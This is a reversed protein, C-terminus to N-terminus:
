KTWDSKSQPKGLRFELMLEIDCGVIMGLMYLQEGPRNWDFYDTIAPYIGNDSLWDKTAELREKPVIYMIKKM